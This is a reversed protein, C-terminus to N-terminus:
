KSFTPTAGVFYVISRREFITLNVVLNEKKGPFDSFQYIIINFFIVVALWLTVPFIM